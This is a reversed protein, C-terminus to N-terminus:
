IRTNEINNEYLGPKQTPPLNECLKVHSGIQFPDLSNIAQVVSLLKLTFLAGDPIVADPM